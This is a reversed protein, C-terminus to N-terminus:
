LNSDEVFIGYVNPPNKKWIENRYAEEVLRTANEIFTVYKKTKDLKLEFLKALRCSYCMKRGFDVQHAINCDSTFKCTGLIQRRWNIEFFRECDSCVILSIETHETMYSIGCADCTRFRLEVGHTIDNLKRKNDIGKSSINSLEENDAIQFRCETLNCKKKSNYIYENNKNAEDGSKALKDSM